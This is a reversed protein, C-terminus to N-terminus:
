IEIEVADEKHFKELNSYPRLGSSWVHKAFVVGVSLKEGGSMRQEEKEVEEVFEKWIKELSHHHAPCGIHNLLFELEAESVIEDGHLENYKAALKEEGKRHKARLRKAQMYKQQFTIVCRVNKFTMHEMIMDVQSFKFLQEILDDCNVYEIGKSKMQPLREVERQMHPLQFGGKKQINEFIGEMKETADDTAITRNKSKFCGELSKINPFLGILLKKFFFDVNREDYPAADEVNRGDGGLGFLTAFVRLRSHEKSKKTLLLAVFGKLHKQALVKIGFKRVLSNKTFTVLNLHKGITDPGPNSLMTLYQDYIDPILSMAAEVGMAKEKGKGLIAKLTPNKGAKAVHLSAKRGEEEPTAAAPDADAGFTVPETQCGNHQLDVHRARRECHLIVVPNTLGVVEESIIKLEKHEHKHTHVFAVSNRQEVKKTLRKFNGLGKSPRKARAPLQPIPSVTGDSHTSKAGPSEMRMIDTEKEKSAM